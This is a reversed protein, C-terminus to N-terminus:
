ISNSTSGNGAEQPSVVSLETTTTSTQESAVFSYTVGKGMGKGGHAAM